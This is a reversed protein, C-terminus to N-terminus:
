PLFHETWSITENSKITFDLMPTPLHVEMDYSLYNKHLEVIWM